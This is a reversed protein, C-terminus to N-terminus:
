RDKKMRDKREKEREEEMAFNRIAFGRSFIISKANFRVLPSHDRPDDRSNGGRERTPEVPSKGNTNLSKERFQEARPFVLTTKTAPVVPGEPHGPATPCEAALRPALSARSILLWGSSGGGGQDPQEATTTDLPHKHTTYVLQM